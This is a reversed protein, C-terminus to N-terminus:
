TFLLVVLIIKIRKSGKKVYRTSFRGKGSKNGRVRPKEDIEEDQEYRVIEQPSSTDDYEIVDIIHLEPEQKINM